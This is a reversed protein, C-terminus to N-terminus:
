ALARPRTITHLSGPRLLYSNPLGTKHLHPNQRHAPKENFEFTQRSRELIFHAVVRYVKDMRCRRVLRPIPNWM